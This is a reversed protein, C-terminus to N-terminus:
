NQLWEKVAVTEERVPKGCASYSTLCDFHTMASNAPSHSVAFNFRLCFQTRDARHMSLYHQLRDLDIQWGWKLVFMNLASQQDSLQQKTVM